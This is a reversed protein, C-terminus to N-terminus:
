GHEQLLLTDINQCIRNPGFASTRQRPYTWPASSFGTHHDLVHRVDMRYQKAVIMVIMEIKGGQTRESSTFIRSENNRGPTSAQKARLMYFWSVFQIPPIVTM